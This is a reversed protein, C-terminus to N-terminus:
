RRVFVHHVDIGHGAPRNGAIIEGSRQSHDLGLGVVLLDGTDRLTPVAVADAGALRVFATGRGPLGGCRPPRWPVSMMAAVVLPSPLCRLRRVASTM